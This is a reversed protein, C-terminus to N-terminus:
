ASQSGFGYIRKLNRNIRVIKGQRKGDKSNGDAGDNSNGKIQIRNSALIGEYSGIFNLKRLSASALSPKPYLDDDYM